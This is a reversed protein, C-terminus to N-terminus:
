SRRGDSPELLRNVLKLTTTKGSGSRGLLILTEGRAISLNLGYVLALGQLWDTLSTESNWPTDTKHMAGSLSAM